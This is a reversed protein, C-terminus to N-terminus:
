NNIDENIAKSLYHVSGYEGSYMMKKAYEEPTLGSNLFALKDGFELFTNSNTLWNWIDCEKSIPPYM